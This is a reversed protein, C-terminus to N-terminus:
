AEVKVQVHTTWQSHVHFRIHLHMLSMPNGPNKFGCRTAAIEQEHVDHVRRARCSQKSFTGARSSAILRLAANLLLVTVLRENGLEVALFKPSDKLFEGDCPVLRM